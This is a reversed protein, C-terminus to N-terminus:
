ESAAASRGALYGTSWAIQLNYGGTLADVDLLEGAFYLGPIMKSEMTSPNVERVNVGGRTIVAENFDRLGTITAPFDKILDLLVAREEKTVENVKKEPSIGSLETVVPILKSPLLRNLANKFNKYMQAASLGTDIFTNSIPSEM